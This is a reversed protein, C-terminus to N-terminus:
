RQEDLIRDKWYGPERSSHPVAIVYVHDRREIYRITHHFRQLVYKRFGFERIPWRAPDDLLSELAFDVEREFEAGFDSRAEDYYDAADYLENQADPHFITNM